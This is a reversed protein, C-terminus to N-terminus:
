FSPYVLRRLDQNPTKSQYHIELSDLLGKLIEIQQQSIGVVQSLCIILLAVSGDGHKNALYETAKRFRQMASVGYPIYSHYGGSSNAELNQAPKGSLGARWYDKIFSMGLSYQIESILRNHYLMSVTDTDLIRLRVGGSSHDVAEPKLKHRQALQKNGTDIAPKSTKQGNKEAQNRPKGKIRKM